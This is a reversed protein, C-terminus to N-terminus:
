PTGTNKILHDTVEDQAVILAKLYNEVHKCDEKNKEKKKNYLATDLYFELTDLKENEPAEQNKTVLGTLISQIELFEKMIAQKEDRCIEEEKETELIKQVELWTKGHFREEPKFGITPRKFMLAYKTSTKLEHLNAKLDEDIKTAVVNTCALVNERGLSIIYKGLPDIYAKKLVESTDTIPWHCASTRRLNTIQQPKLPETDTTSNLKQREVSPGCETWDIKLALSVRIRISSWVTGRAATLLLPVVPNSPPHLSPGRKTELLHINRCKFPLLYFLRDRNSDTTPLIRYYLAQSDEMEYEKVNINDKNIICYRIIKNGALHKSTVPILFLRYCHKSAVLMYDVIQRNVNINTIVKMQTGPLGEILFFEGIDLFGTVIVRGHEFFQVTSIPNSTLSFSAMVTLKEPKYVSILELTGNEYGVVIYPFEPNEAITLAKSKLNMTNVVKGTAVEYVALFKHVRLAVIHEGTPYILCFDNFNTDHHKLYTMEEVNSIKVIEEHNTVGILYDAKNCYMNRIIVDLEITWDCVWEGSKKYHRIEKNPGAVALGGKYWCISPRVEGNLDVEIILFLVMEENLSYVCGKIDVIFMGGETTWLMDSFPQINNEDPLTIQHKAIIARRCCTFVDWLYIHNTNRVMQTMYILKGWSCRYRTQFSPFILDCTSKRMDFDKFKVVTDFSPYNKVYLEANHANEAYAFTYVGRHGRIVSVGDGNVSQASAIHKLEEGTNINIFNIFCGAAYCIVDNVIFSLKDLHGIKMWETLNDSAKM